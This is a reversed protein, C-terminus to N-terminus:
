CLGNCPRKLVSGFLSRTHPRHDKPKCLRRAPCSPKDSGHRAIDGEGGQSPDSDARDQEIMHRCKVGNPAGHCLACAV